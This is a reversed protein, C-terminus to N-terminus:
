RKTLHGLLNFAGIIINPLLASLFVNEKPVAADVNKLLGVPNVLLMSCVINSVGRIPMPKAAPFPESVYLYIFILIFCLMLM